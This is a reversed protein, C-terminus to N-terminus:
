ATQALTPIEVIQDSGPYEPLDLDFEKALARCLAALLRKLLSPSGRDFNSPLRVSPHVQRGALTEQRCLVPRRGKSRHALDVHPTPLNPSSRDARGLCGMGIAWLLNALAWLPIQSLYFTLAYPPYTSRSSRSPRKPLCLSSRLSHTESLHNSRSGKEFCYFAKLMIEGRRIMFSSSFFLGFIADLVVSNVALAHKFEDVSHIVPIELNVCQKQLRDYFPNKGPKPLYVTPQYGFHVLHRAAVLGDGGQNGPGCAVLVSKESPFSRALATALQFSLGVQRDSRQGSPLFSGFSPRVM